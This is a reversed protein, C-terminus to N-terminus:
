FFIVWFLFVLPFHLIFVMYKFENVVLDCTTSLFRYVTFWLFFAFDLVIMAKITVIHMYFILRDYHLTTYRYNKVTRYRRDLRKMLVKRAKRNRCEDEVHQVPRATIVNRTMKWKGNIHVFLWTRIPTWLPGNYVVVLKAPM